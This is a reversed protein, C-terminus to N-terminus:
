LRRVDVLGQGAQQRRHHVDQQRVEHHRDVRRQPVDIRSGDPRRPAETRTLPERQALHDQRRQTGPGRGAGHQDEDEAEAEVHRGGEEAPRLRLEDGGLQAGLETLQLIETARGGHSQDQEDHHQRDVPEGVAEEPDVTFSSRGRLLRTSATRPANSPTNRAAGSSAM